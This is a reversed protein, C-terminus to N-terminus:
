RNVASSGDALRIYVYKMKDAHQKMSQRQLTMTDEQFAVSWEEIEKQSNKSPGAHVSSELYLISRNEDLRYSGSDLSTSQNVYKGDSKFEIWQGSTANNAVEKNGSLIKQIKWTGVISEIIKDPTNKADQARLTATFIGVLIMM